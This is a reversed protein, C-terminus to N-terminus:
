LPAIPLVFVVSFSWPSAKDIFTVRDLGLQLTGTDGNAVAVGNVGSLV